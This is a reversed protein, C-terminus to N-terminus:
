QSAESPGLLERMRDCLVGAYFQSPWRHREAARAGATGFHGQSAAPTTGAPVRIELLGPVPNSEERM